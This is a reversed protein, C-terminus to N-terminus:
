REIDIKKNKTAPEKPSTNEQTKDPDKKYESFNMKLIKARNSSFMLSRDDNPYEQAFQDMFRFQQLKYLDRGTKLAMQRMLNYNVFSDGGMNMLNINKLSTINSNFCQIVTDVPLGSKFHSSVGVSYQEIIPKYTEYTGHKNLMNDIVSLNSAQNHINALDKSVQSTSGRSALNSNLGLFLAEMQVIAGIDRSQQANEKTLEELNSCYSNFLTENDDSRGRDPFINILFRINDLTRKLINSDIRNSNM